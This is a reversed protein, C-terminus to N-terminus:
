SAYDELGGDRRMDLSVCHFGGGLARSHRLRLPIVDIGARELLRLLAPHAADVVALDVDVMLLNMAIWPSSLSRPDVPAVEAPRPCWLVEWGRFCSPLADRTIRAPNLLILGPRLVAITSDIHTHEYVGRLPHLRLDGLMPLLSALWTLGLENGSGSVQYLVDRGIRLVNAAEFAPETEGLRVHGDPGVEYLADTLRQKPASIWRAGQRLYELFLAHLSFGEFYRARTPTPTEVIMGGLVLALDRPCYAYMGRSRWGPAGFEACSDLLEPRRVTVGAERLASVLLALDEETEEVVRAPLGLEPLSALAARDLEPFLNLWASPDDVPPLRAGQVEGIVVERLRTFEDWSRVPVTSHDPM